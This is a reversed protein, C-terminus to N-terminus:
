THLCINVSCIEYFISHTHCVEPNSLGNTARLVAEGFMNSDMTVKEIANNSPKLEEVSSQNKSQNKMTVSLYDVLEETMDIGAEAFLQIM